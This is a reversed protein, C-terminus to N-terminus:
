IDDGNSVCSSVLIASANPHRMLKVVLTINDVAESDTKCLSNLLAERTPRSLIELPSEEFCRLAYIKVITINKSGTSDDFTVPKTAFDLM